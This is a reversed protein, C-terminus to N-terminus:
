VISKITKDAYRLTEDIAQDMERLADPKATLLASVNISSVALLCGAVTLFQQYREQREHGLSEWNRPEPPLSVMWKELAHTGHVSVYEMIATARHLVDIMTDFGQQSQDLAAEAAEVETRLREEEEEKKNRRQRLVYFGAAALAAAPAAVMGTLLLIGGAM